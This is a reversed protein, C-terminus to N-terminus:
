GHRKRQTIPPPTTKRHTGSAVKPFHVGITYHADHIAVVEVPPSGVADTAAQSAAKLGRAIIMGVLKLPNDDAIGELPEKVEIIADYRVKIYKTKPNAM